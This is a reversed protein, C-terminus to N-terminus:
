DVRVTPPTTSLVVVTYTRDEEATFFTTANPSIGEVKADVEYTVPDVEVYGTTSRPGVDNINYTSGSSRKLQVDTIEARQNTVRVRPPDPSCAALGFLLGSLILLRAFTRMPVTDREFRHNVLFDTM